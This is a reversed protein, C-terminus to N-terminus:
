KNKYICGTLLPLPLRSDAVPTTLFLIEVFMNHEYVISLRELKSGLARKMSM